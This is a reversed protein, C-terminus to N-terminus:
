LRNNDINLQRQQPNTKMGAELIDMLNTLLHQAEENEYISHDLFDAETLGLRDVFYKGFQYFIIEMIFAAVDPDVWEAVEGHLIGQSILQKFFQTTGRRRLEEVMEPFKVGEVFARYSIQALAPHRIEFFVESLFQWRMYGFLGANHDPAPLDKVLQLKENAAVEILYCYLDKKDEFYQYLSGKAIGAERVLNSISAVDYPNAAFEEIALDIIRNRKQEPLNNFTDTPM